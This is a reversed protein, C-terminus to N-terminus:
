VIADNWRVTRNIRSAISDIHDRNYGTVEAIGAGDMGRKIMREAVTAFADDTSERRVREKMIEWSDVFNVGGSTTTFEQRVWKLNESGTIEILADAAQM